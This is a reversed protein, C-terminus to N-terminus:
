PTPYSMESPAGSGGANPDGWVAISGNAKLAAFAYMTSYVKTYDAGFPAHTGGKNPDGWV